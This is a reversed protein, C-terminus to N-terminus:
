QYIRRRAHVHRNRNRNVAFQGVQCRVPHFQVRLLNLVGVKRRCASARDKLRVSLYESHRCLLAVRAIQGLGGAHGFAVRRPTRVALGDSVEAVRRAFVLKIQVVLRAELRRCYDVKAGIGAVKVAGRPRRVRLVDCVGVLVQAQPVHIHWCPLRHQHIRAYIAAKARIEAGHPRRIRLPNRIM